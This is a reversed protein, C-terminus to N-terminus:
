FLPMKYRYDKGLETGGWEVVTFGRREPTKIVPENTKVFTDSPQFAMFVRIVQDPKPLVNLPASQTYDDEAFRILNYPNNLMKPLWFVIMDNYEKPTLGLKPLVKQLFVKTDSGKVCFGENMNFNYPLTPSGEWFLYQHETNDSLNKLNGQKDAIVQWGGLKESYDPYTVTLKGKFDLKVDVKTTKTPYLYIVPKLAVVINSDEEIECIKVKKAYIYPPTGCGCIFPISDALEQYKFRVTLTHQKYQAPLNVPYVLKYIAPAFSSTPDQANIYWGNPDLPCKEVTGWAMKNCCTGGGEGGEGGPNPDIPPHNPKVCFSLFLATAVIGALTKIQRTKMTELHQNRNVLCDNKGFAAHDSLIIKKPRFGM